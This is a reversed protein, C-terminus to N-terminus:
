HVRRYVLVITDLWTHIAYFFTLTEMATHLMAISTNGSGGSQMAHLINGAHKLCILIINTTFIPKDRVHVKCPICETM